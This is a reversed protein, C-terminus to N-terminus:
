MNHHKVFDAFCRAYTTSLETDKYKWGGSPNGELFYWDGKYFIADWVVHFYKNGLSKHLLMCQDNLRKIHPIKEEFKVGHFNIFGVTNSSFSNITGDLEVRYQNGGLKCDSNNTDISEPSAGSLNLSHGVSYFHTGDTCTLTKVVIPVTLNKSSLIKSHFESDYEVNECVFIPNDENKKRLVSLTIKETKGNYWNTTSDYNIRYCGESMCGKNAKVFLNKRPLFNDTLQIELPTMVKNKMFLEYWFKKDDNMEPGQLIFSIYAFLPDKGMFYMAFRNTYEEMSIDHTGKIYSYYFGTILLKMLMDSYQCKEVSKVFIYLFTMYYKPANYEREIVSKYNNYFEIGLRLFAKNASDM